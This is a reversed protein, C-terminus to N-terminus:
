TYAGGVLCWDGNGDNILRVFDKEATLMISNLGDVTNNPQGTIIVVNDGKHHRIIFERGMSQAIVPM